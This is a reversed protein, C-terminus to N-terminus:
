PARAVDQQGAVWAAIQTRKAFGLKALVNEVHGEVTRPSLVLSAAIERTSLGQAILDAVQRERRTLSVGRDSPVSVHGGEGLAENVAQELSLRAGEDFAARFGRGGLATLTRSKCQESLRAHHGFTPMTSGLANWVADATGLLRAADRYHGTAAAVWALLEIDLAAGLDDRFERKIALSERALPTASHPDGHMLREIGLAWLAYSRGHREGYCDCLALAEECSALARDSDGVLSYTLALQFLTNIVGAADDAARHGAIAEEFFKIATTLEGRFQAATGELQSVYAQVAGSNLHEALGRCEELDTAAAPLDGQLLAVAAKVWLADARERTPEHSSRIMLDLWYRGERLFGGALWHYMLAAALGQGARLEAHSTTSFELAARNNAHEARLRALWVGQGPGCWQAVSKEALGRYFDRHRRRLLTEQSDDLRERGYQRIPELMRYRMRRGETEPILISQGVLRDILDVIAAAALGEGACVAEAAELDFGGAFVSMREWLRREEESCLEYSWDILARMTRHRPRVTRSGGSLLQYSDVLRELLQDPSLSRLRVAALEIALPVGELRACIASVALHNEPTVTFGPVVASARDVLLTVSDYQGMAQVPPPRDVDPVSLPPVVFVHEASIGLAHRSTTLFRSEPAGHLLTDVLTACAEVLHECNDLLVLTQRGTLHDALLQMPEKRSNNDMGLARLVTEALLSKDQLDALEVLWVGDPFARQSVAAVQLALRTKGVGGAGTLTVIRSVSLRDRVETIERRRGVFSTVGAPLNGPRRSSAGAM